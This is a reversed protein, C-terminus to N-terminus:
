DGDDDSAGGGGSGSDDEDEGGGAAGAPGAPEPAPIPAPAAGRTAPRTGQDDDSAGDDDTGGGAAPASGGVPGANRTRARQQPKAVPAQAAPRARSKPSNQKRQTKVPRMVGDPGAETVDTRLEIKPVEATTPERSLYTGAVALPAFLLVALIAYRVAAMTVRTFWFLM